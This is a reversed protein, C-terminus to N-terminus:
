LKAEEQVMPLKMSEAPSQTGQGDPEKEAVLPARSQVVCWIQAAPVKRSVSPVEVLSLTQVLHEGPLKLLVWFASEHVGHEASM